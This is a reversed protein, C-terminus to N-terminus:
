QKSDLYIGDTTKLKNYPNIYTINSTKNQKLQIIDDKVQTYLAEMREQITVNLDNVKRGIMEEEETYPPKIGNILVERAVIQESVKNIIQERNHKDLSNLAQLMNTTITYIEQLRNTM